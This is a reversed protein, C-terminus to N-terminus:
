VTLAKATYPEKQLEHLVQSRNLDQLFAATWSGSRRRARRDASLMKRVSFFCHSTRNPIPLVGTNGSMTCPLPCSLVCSIHKNRLRCRLLRSAPEGVATAQRAAKPQHVVTVLSLPPRVNFTRVNDLGKPCAASYSTGSARGSGCTEACCILAPEDQVQM